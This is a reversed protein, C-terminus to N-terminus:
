RVEVCNSNGQRSLGFDFEEFCRKDDDMGKTNVFLKCSEQLYEELSWNVQIWRRDRGRPRLEDHEIGMEFEGIEEEQVEM